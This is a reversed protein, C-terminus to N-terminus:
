NVCYSLPVLRHFCLCVVVTKLYHIYAKLENYPKLEYIHCTQLLVRKKMLVEPQEVLVDLRSVGEVPCFTIM